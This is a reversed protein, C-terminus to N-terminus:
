KGAHDEHGHRRIDHHLHLVQVLGGASWRVSVSNLGTCLAALDVGREGACYAHEGALMRLCAKALAACLM